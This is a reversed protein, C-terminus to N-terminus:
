SEMGYRDYRNKGRRLHDVVLRLTTDYVDHQRWAIEMSDDDFCPSVIM